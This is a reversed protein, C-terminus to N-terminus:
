KETEIMGDPYASWLYAKVTAVLRSESMVWKGVDKDVNVGCSWKGANPLFMSDIFFNDILDGCQAQSTTPHYHESFVDNWRRMVKDDELYVDFEQAVAAAYDLQQSTASEIHIKTM